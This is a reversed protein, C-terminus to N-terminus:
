GPHHHADGRVGRAQGLPPDRGKRHRRTRRDPHLPDGDALNWGYIAQLTQHKAGNAALRTAGLHRLGHPTCKPVDVKDCAARFWRGFRGIEFPAGMKPDILFTLDGKEKCADIAEQLVPLVPVEIAKGTKQANIGTLVGAHIHQRGMKVVDVGRQGSYLLLAYALRERSGLPYAQEFRFAEVDTWVHNTGGKNKVGKVGLCPNKAVHKQDVAWDFVLRLQAIAANAATLKGTAAITDRLERITDDTIARFPASGDQRDPGPHQATAEPNGRGDPAPGALAPVPRDAM